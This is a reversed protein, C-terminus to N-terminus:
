GAVWRFVVLKVELLKFGDLRAELDEGLHSSANARRPEGLGDNVEVRVDKLARSRPTSRGSHISFLENRGAELVLRHWTQREPPGGVNSFPACVRIVIHFFHPPQAFPLPTM